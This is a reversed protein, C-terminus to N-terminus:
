VGLTKLSGSRSPFDAAQGQFIRARRRTWEPPQWEAQVPPIADLLDEVGDAQLGLRIRLAPVSACPSFCHSSSPMTM